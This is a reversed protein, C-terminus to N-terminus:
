SKQILRGHIEPGKNSMSQIETRQIENQCNVGTEVISGHKQITLNRCFLSALSSPPIESLSNLASLYGAKSSTSLDHQM